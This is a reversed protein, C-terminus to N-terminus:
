TLTGVTTIKHLRTSRKRTGSPDPGDKQDATPAGAQASRVETPTRGCWRKFAHNLAATERYGLLWAIEALPLERERLYRQALDFRLRDLIKVFSQGEAALRRALTRRSVGLQRAVEGIQAQGHPLLPVIANEVKLRWFSSRLRRAALAEDFYRVLLSNLYPDASAIELATAKNPFTVEDASSNFAIDVGFFSRIEAPVRGRRHVFAVTTPSLQRGTLQRCARLLIAVFFEIQHRDLRRPVGIYEFAIRAFKGERYTIEVGENQLKSYRATRKLADGLCQSSASVYYLFGLERPDIDRALHVGLFEDSSEEAILNLLDIQSRVPIRARPDNIQALTLGAKHLLPEIPIQAKCAFAVAARAIGGGATPISNLQPRESERM